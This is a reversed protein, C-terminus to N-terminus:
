AKNVQRRRFIAGFGIAAATGLVTLPEPVEAGGIMDVEGSLKSSGKQNEGTSQLRAGLVQGQFDATTLGAVTFTTESLLGSSSGSTGFTVGFDFEDGKFGNLNNGGKLNIVSNADIETKTIDRGTISTIVSVNDNLVGAYFGFLDGNVTPPREIKVDFQVGGATDALTVSVQADDGTFEDLIAFSTGISAASATSFSSAAIVGTAGTLVATLLSIKNM